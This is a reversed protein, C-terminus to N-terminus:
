IKILQFIFSEFCHKCRSDHKFFTGFALLAHLYNVAAIPTVKDQKKDNPELLSYILDARAKESLRSAQNGIKCNLSETLYVQGWYCSCRQTAVISSANEEDKAKQFEVLLTSVNKHEHVM